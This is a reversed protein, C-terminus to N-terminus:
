SGMALQCAEELTMKEGEERYKAFEEDSLLENLRAALESKEKEANIDFVTGMSKVSHEAAYLLRVADFHKKNLEFLQALYILTNAIGPKDGIERKMSLSMEHYKGAQENDGRHIAISGLNNMSDAMGRKDGIEERIALSEEFYTKAQEYNGQTYMVGGLNNMSDAMGIRDGIEKRIALSEEFYKKAQEYDGQIYVIGGLNHMYDAIGKRNGLEKRIYLSKEFYKKAHEYEGQNFAIMGLNGTSVAIGMKSGIDKNYALSEEHYKKAHEYDGQFSSLSGLSNLNSAMGKIDGIEKKIAFSEEFHKKAQEYDGLDASLNGLSQLSESIGNKDGLEKKIALSEEFYIKAKEPDGMLDAVKGLNNLSVAIGKKDDITRSVTLCEESYKKVQEYDGQLYKFVCLWNLVNIISSKDSAGSCQLINEYLRIGTSYHGNTNWFDGLAVAMIAGKDAHGNNVSWDIASIFNTHDAEIKDFWFRAKEGRLEPEAKKSIGLFYNLHRLYTGNGDSLKEIGYQKISELIRYRGNSEDFIIVSKETLQSQLDLILSKSIMEDSCVEEAAELTWGGSFVTLRSWLIKEEESLLDYSWDILARLTQQRPLATRKGGTLLSFRDDLREYIKSISLINTRAAALELALPIGDLRSCIEALATANENNVRFGPNVLLAREIFLRVSEFQILEEPTNNTNPDPIALAPIRYTKEGECNLAERSTAIMKLKPCSSLLREALNACAHILQECNDLLILIEKGKLFDILTEETTRKSEEKIGLADIMTSTLLAPDNLAALDVFWVGHEYEDIVEAGTQLALRTKGSGGASTLTVLRSLKLAEKVQKMEKERGIFSTLQVPLNNPRADLTELPPFDERLGAGVVQYLRIPLIVDKLRREGLDRFDIRNSQSETDKAYLEYADNSILIQEGYAASMVRAARALTIYGMYNNGNWEANGSHIGIRVKIVAEDWKESALSRQIEVAAKFADEPSEFAGCFADGVSQFIFGNNSEIDRILISHHKDLASLLKEPFKQSLKTSGEIDTFLFTVKGSPIIKETNNM